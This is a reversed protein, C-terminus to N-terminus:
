GGGEGERSDRGEGESRKGVQEGKGFARQVPKAALWDSRGCDGRPVGVRWHSPKRGWGLYGVKGKKKVEVGGTYGVKEVRKM